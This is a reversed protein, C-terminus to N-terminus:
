LSLAGQAPSPPRAEEEASELRAKAIEVYEASQEVGVFQFGEQIAAVGTSGSGSFPDLVLGDPPTVLRVLWRMLAVPKVTPHINRAGGTRGTGTRPSNLRAQGEESDTAEAGSRAPLAECGADREARSAKAVYFFRSAGGSDAYTMNRTDKKHGGDYGGSKEAGNRNEGVYIGTRMTGTQADLVTAAVEDLVVNAPWRGQESVPWGPPPSGHNTDGSQSRENGGHGRYPDPWHACRTGGGSAGVRCGDINLTGTGHKLVNAAVTGVLPKRAMIIPEWAPKLATGTGSVFERRTKGCGGCTQARRQEPVTGPEGARQQAPQPRPPAGSGDPVPVPGVSAGDRTPAGDRIRGGQGDAPIGGPVACVGGGRLKREGVAGDSRGEVGPEASREDEGLSAEGRGSDLGREGQSRADGVGGRAVGRQMSPLMDAGQHAEAVSALGDQAQRVGRVSDDSACECLMGKKKLEKAVDLSKPFGTGFNWSLVDRVEFGALRIALGGVDFTRSGFFALLYGGPKLVRLVERWVEPGPVFADWEKGMFGKGKPVYVEGSAWARLVELMDPQEGLGYPPDTVVADVSSDLMQKLVDRCDGHYLVVGGDKSEYYPKM